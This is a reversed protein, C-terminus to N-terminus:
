PGILNEPPEEVVTGAGGWIPTQPSAANIQLDDYGADYLYQSLTINAQDRLEMSMVPNAAFSTLDLMFCEYWKSELDPRIEFRYLAGNSYVYGSLTRGLDLLFYDEDEETIQLLVYAPKQKGLFLGLAMFSLQNLEDPPPMDGVVGTLDDFRYLNSVTLDEIRTGSPVRIVGELPKTRKTTGGSISDGGGSLSYFLADLANRNPLSDFEDKFM